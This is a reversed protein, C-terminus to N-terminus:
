IEKTFDDFSYIYRIETLEKGAIECICEDGDNCRWKNKEYFRRARQNQKLVWLYINQYSSKKLDSLACELLKNGYGKGFYEPLLYISVIEGWNILSEDRARGYAVCGVLSGNESIIQVTLINDNVWTEFAPVWFDEKLEDLYTQPIIGKYASKWSLAHIYSIHKVDDITAKRIVMYVGRFSKVYKVLSILLAFIKGM